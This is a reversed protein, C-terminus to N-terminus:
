IYPGDIVDCSAPDTSMVPEPFPIETSLMTPAMIDQREIM